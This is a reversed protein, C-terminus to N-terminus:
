CTPCCFVDTMCPMLPLPLFANYSTTISSPKSTPSAFSWSISFSFTSFSFYFFTTVSRLFKIEAVKEKRYAEQLIFCVDHRTLSLSHDLTKKRSHSRSPARVFVFDAPLSVQNPLLLSIQPLALTLRSHFSSFIIPSAKSNRYLSKQEELPWYQSILDYPAQM